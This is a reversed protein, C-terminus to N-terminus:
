SGPPLGFVGPSRRCGGGQGATAKSILTSSAKTVLPKVAKKMGDMVMKLWGFGVVCQGKERSAEFLVAFLKIQLKTCIM